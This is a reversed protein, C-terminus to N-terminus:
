ARLDLREVLRSMAREAAARVSVDADDLAAEVAHVHETDGVVGLTRVSQARVRPLRHAVLEAAGPAAGALERMSSVKLCNEAVRWAGDGLGRVVVPSAREAWVYLLGRAGWARPWYDDWYVTPVPGGGVYPLVDALQHPDAGALLDACLEAAAAEGVQRRLAALLERPPARPDPPAPLAERM